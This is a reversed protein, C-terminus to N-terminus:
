GAQVAIVRRDEGDAPLEVRCDCHGAALVDNRGLVDAVHGVLSRDIGDPEGAAGRDVFAERVRDAVGDGGFANSQEFVGLDRRAIAAERVPLTEDHRCTLRLGAAPSRM